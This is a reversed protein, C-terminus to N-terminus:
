EGSEAQVPETAGGGSGDASLEKKYDICAFLICIILFIAHLALVVLCGKAVCGLGRKGGAPKEVTPKEVATANAPVEFGPSQRVEPRAVGPMQNIMKEYDVM